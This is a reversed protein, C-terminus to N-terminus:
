NVYLNSKGVFYLWIECTVLTKCWGYTVRTEWTVMDVRFIKDTDRILGIYVSISWYTQIGTQQYEM